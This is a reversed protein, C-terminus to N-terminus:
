QTATSVCSLKAFYGPKLVAPSGAMDLALRVTAPHGTAPVTLAGGQTIVPKEFTYESGKETWQNAYWFFKFVAWNGEIAPYDFDTGGAFKVRMKVEQAGGGSWIFHQAASNGKAYKLTQGDISLTVSEVDEDPVVRLSFALQPQQQPGHYFASSVAAAQNLFNLFAHTPVPDADPKAAFSTGTVVILKQLNDQALKWLAGSAPKFIQEFEDLTAPPASPTPNFPYKRMLAGFQSCFNRAAGNAQQKPVGAILMQVYKIPAEIINDTSADIGGPMDPTFNRALSSVTQGAATAKQLADNRLMENPEDTSLTGLSAQLGILGNIYAENGPSSWHGTCGAPELGQPPEFLTSVNKDYVSTNESALCLAELLPSQNSSLVRLKDAADRVTVFRVVQTRRLYERWNRILDARYLAQLEQKLAAPDVNKLAQPGLVWDDGALYKSARGIEYQTSTWGAKTFAFPVPFDNRVVAATGPYLANFVLPPHRNIKALIEQYVPLAASRNKLYDRSAALAGADPETAHCIEGRALETAYFDFQRAAAASDGPPLTKGTAWHANLVDPLFPRASKRGHSTTILYAKLADYVSGYNGGAFAPNDLLKVLETQTPALLLRDFAACWSRRVPNALADGTFLGWRLHQPTEGSQYDDLIAAMQQVAALKDLAQASPVADRDLRERNAERVATEATKTLHYNGAFSITWAVALFLGLASLAAFAIRRVTNTKVSTKSSELAARDNLIVEPFLRPLFTWQPVRRATGKAQLIEPAVRQRSQFVSTAAPDFAPTRAAPAIQAPAIDVTSIPRVGTFYFGRLVPNSHLQSPRCLDVLFQTLLPRLKAFERPFEYVQPLKSADHERDLYALRQDNLSACIQFFAASLRHTQREAYAGALPATFSLTTGLVSRAEDESLNAVYEAFYPLRDAKTLIVYVPLSIGLARAFPSLQDRLQRAKAALTEAANPEVFIECSLCVVAARPASQRNSFVNRVSPALRNALRRWAVPDNLVAVGADAVITHGALWVNLTATPAVTEATFAHGALLEPELGSRLIVTTKAAGSDGLMVVVPLQGLQTQALASDRMRTRAEALVLDLEQAASSVPSSTEDATRRRMWLYISAGILGIVILVLRLVLVDPKSLHLLGPIFWSLAIWFLLIPLVVTAILKRM